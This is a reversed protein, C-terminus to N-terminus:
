KLQFENKIKVSKFGHVYVPITGYFNAFIKLIEKEIEKLWYLRLLVLIVVDM